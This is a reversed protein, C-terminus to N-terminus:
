VILITADIEKGADELILDYYGLEMQNNNLMDVAAKDALSIDESTIEDGGQRPNSIWLSKNHQKIVLYM